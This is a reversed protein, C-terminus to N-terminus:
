STKSFFKTMFYGPDMKNTRLVYFAPNRGSTLGYCIRIVGQLSLKWFPNSVTFKSVSRHSFYLFGAKRIGPTLITSQTAFLLRRCKNALM